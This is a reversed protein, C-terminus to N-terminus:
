QKFFRTYQSHNLRVSKYYFEDFDTTLFTLESGTEDLVLQLSDFAINAAYPYEFFLVLMGGADVQVDILESQYQHDLRGYEDKVFIQVSTIATDITFFPDHSPFEYTRNENVRIDVDDFPYFGSSTSNESFIKIYTSDGGVGSFSGPEITSFTVPLQDYQYDSTLTVVSGDVTYEGESFLVHYTTVFEYSFSGDIRFEFLETHTDSEARYIGAVPGIIQTFAPSM